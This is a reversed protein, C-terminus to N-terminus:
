WMSQGSFTRGCNSIFYNQTAIADELIEAPRVTRGKEHGRRVPNPM